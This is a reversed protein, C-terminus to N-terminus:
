SRTKEQPRLECTIQFGQGRHGSWGEDGKTEVQVRGFLPSRELDAAFQLVDQVSIAIGEVRLIPTVSMSQATPKPSPLVLHGTPDSAVVEESKSQESAKAFVCVSPLNMSLRTLMVSEPMKKSLDSLVVVLSGRDALTRILDEYESLRLREAELVAKKTAHVKLQEHQQSVETLLAKATSVQHEHAAIWVIMLMFM